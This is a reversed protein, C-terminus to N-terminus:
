LNEQLFRQYDSASVIHAGDCNFQMHIADKIISITANRVYYNQINRLDPFKAITKTVEEKSIPQWTEYHRGFINGLHEPLEGFFDGARLAGFVRRIVEAKREYEIRPFHREIYTEDILRNAPHFEDNFPDLITSIRIEGNNFGINIRYACRNILLDQFVAVLQPLAKDVSSEYRERFLATERLSPDGKIGIHLHKADLGTSDILKEKLVLEENRQTLLAHVKEAIHRETLLFDLFEDKAISRLRTDKKAAASATRRDKNFVAMEGFFEGPGIAQIEQKTNFEAVFISVLGEEIFYIADATDGGSFIM